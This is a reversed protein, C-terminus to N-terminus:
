KHEETELDYAISYSYCACLILANKCLHSQLPHPSIVTPLAHLQATQDGVRYVYVKSLVRSAIRSLLALLLDQILM